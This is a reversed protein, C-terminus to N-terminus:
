NNQGLFNVILSFFIKTEEGNIIMKSKYIVHYNFQYLFNFTPSFTFDNVKITFSNLMTEHDVINISVHLIELALDELASIIKVAQGPIQPSVTKLLVNPGSFKVEVDAIESKSNAVLENINDDISTSSSPSPQLSNAM